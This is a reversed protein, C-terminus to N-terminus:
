HAFACLLVAKEDGSPDRCGGRKGIKIADTAMRRAGGLKGITQYGSLPM